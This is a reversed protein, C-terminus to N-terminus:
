PETAVLDETGHKCFPRIEKYLYNKREASLGPAKIEVPPLSAPPLVSTDFLIKFETEPSDVHERLFFKGPYSSSFRFHHYKKIDPIKRFFPSLYASWDYVPVHVTGDHLGCLKAVNVGTQSSSEIAEAIEFLSSVFTKSIRQKGLGFCWDPAFKTHGAELFDNSLNLHLKHITRWSYYWMFYNNKNQGTCNDANLGADTEGLGYNELFFHVYSITANAGKGALVSEDILFNVQRPIAECCVGFVACKRPTKFYIPGPQLPNSPYHIQQAYDYSYHIFRPTSCVPHRSFLSFNGASILQQLNQESLKCADRYSDRERQAHFLHKEQTRVSETKQAEPLNASRLISNNNTQCTFCLDTMPTMILVYPLLTNWLDVFKSYGVRPKNAVEAAAYYQRWVQKKTSCSPLLLVDAKRYGPVRGPLTIAHDEAYNKIFKVANSTM